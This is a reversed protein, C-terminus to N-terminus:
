NAGGAPAAAPNAVTGNIAECATVTDAIVVVKQGAPIGAAPNTPEIACLVPHAAGPGGTPSAGPVGIPPAGPMGIPGGVIAPIWVVVGGGGSPMGGYPGGIMSGYPGGIMSGYPGGIASGYPGGIM